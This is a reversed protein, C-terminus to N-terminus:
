YYFNIEDIKESYIESVKANLFEYKVKDIFRTDNFLRYCTVLLGGLDWKSAGLGTAIVNSSSALLNSYLIIKKTRIQYLEQPMKRGDNEFLLKCGHISAILSNILVSVGATTGVKLVDGTSIYQTLKETNAKTLVLNAGPLSIGAPTYLDTAIHILQKIVAAVVAEKDNEIRACASQLMKITSVPLGIRPNKNMEDYIVSHTTLSKIFNTDDVCTITNTLINATGFLFGILPDHGLTAFRHNAGKFLGYKIDAYGTADYPVGRTSLIFALSAHMDGQLTNKEFHFKSFFKDQFSHLSDEKGGHSNAREIM